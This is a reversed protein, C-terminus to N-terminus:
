EYEEEDDDDEGSVDALFQEIDFDSNLNQSRENIEQLNIIFREMGEFSLHEESLIEMKVLQKFVKQIKERM